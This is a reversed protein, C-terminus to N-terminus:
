CINGNLKFTEFDYRTILEHNRVSYIRALDLDHLEPCTKVKGTLVDPAPVLVSFLFVFEVYVLFKFSFHGGQHNRKMGITGGTYLVLVKRLEVPESM